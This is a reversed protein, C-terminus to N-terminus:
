KRERKQFSSNASKFGLIIFSFFGVVISLLAVCSFAYSLIFVTKPVEKFSGDSTVVYCIGAEIKGISANGGVLDEVIGLLFINLYMMVVSAICFKTSRKM